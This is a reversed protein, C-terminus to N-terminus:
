LLDHSVDHSKDPLLHLNYLDVHSPISCPVVHSRSSMYLPLCIAVLDVIALLTRESLLQVCEFLLQYLLRYQM